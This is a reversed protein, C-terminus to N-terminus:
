RRVELLMIILEDCRRPTTAYHYNPVVDQVSHACITGLDSSPRDQAQQRQHRLQRQTECRTNM